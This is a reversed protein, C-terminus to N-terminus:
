PLTAGNTLNTILGNIAGNGQPFTLLPQVFDWQYAWQVQNTQETSVDVIGTLLCDTYIYSPTMVTFSGGAQVHNEITAKLAMMIGLKPILPTNKTAPCFSVLSIQNPQQIVANAAVRQTYFPYEAVQYKLLTSGQTPKYNFFAQTPTGQSFGLTVNFAETLTSVSIGIASPINTGLAANGAGILNSALGGTLIIPSVQFAAGYIGSTISALSM